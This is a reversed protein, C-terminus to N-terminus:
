SLCCSSAPFMKLVSIMDSHNQKQIFYCVLCVRWSGAM